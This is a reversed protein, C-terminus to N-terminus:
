SARAAIRTALDELQPKTRSEFSCGDAARYADCLHRCRSGRILGDAIEFLIGDEKGIHSRILDIYAFAATRLTHLAANGADSAVANAMARVLRRARRHEELMVAVPGEDRPLGSMELEEFLLSEEKAHHCADAYLRLFEICDSVLDLDPEAGAELTALTNELADTVTLILRHEARLAATASERDTNDATM